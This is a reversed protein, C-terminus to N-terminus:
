TEEGHTGKGEFMFQFVEKTKEASRTAPMIVTSFEHKM